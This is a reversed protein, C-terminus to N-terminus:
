RRGGIMGRLIWPQAIVVSVNVYFQMHSRVQFDCLPRWANGLGDM